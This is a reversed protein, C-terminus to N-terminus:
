RKRAGEHVREELWRVFLRFPREQDAIAQTLAAADLEDGAQLEILLTPVGRFYQLYDQATGRHRYRIVQAVQGYHFGVAKAMAVAVQKLGAIGPPERRRDFAWPWMVSRAPSHYDLAAVLRGQRAYAKFAEVLAPGRTDPQYPVPFARNLDYSAGGPGVARREGTAFGDINVAPVFHYVLGGLSPDPADLLREALHLVVETAIWESGHVGGYVLLVPADAAFHGDLDIELARVERGAATTAVTVLRTTDPHLAHLEALRLNLSVDDHLPDLREAHAGRGAGGAVALV